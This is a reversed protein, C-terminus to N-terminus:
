KEKECLEIAKLIAQERSQNYTFEHMINSNDNSCNIYSNRNSEVRIQYFNSELIMCYYIWIHINYKERFFSIVQDWLPAPIKGNNKTPFGSKTRDIPNYLNNFRFCKERNYIGLCVGDFGLEMLKVSIEYSCFQEKM